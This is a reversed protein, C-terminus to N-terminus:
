QWALLSVRELDRNLESATRAEGRVVQFLSAGDAFLKIDCNVNEVLDNMYILFFLPGLVSGQIVGSTINGLQFM